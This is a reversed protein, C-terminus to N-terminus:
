VLYLLLCRDNISVILHWVQSLVVYPFTDFVYSFMVCSLAWLDALESCTAMLGCPVSILVHCVRFM